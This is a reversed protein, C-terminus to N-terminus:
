WNKPKIRNSYKALIQMPHFSICLCMGSHVKLYEGITQGEQTCHEDQGVSMTEDINDTCLLEDEALTGIPLQNITSMSSQWCRTGGDEDVNSGQIFPVAAHGNWVDNLPYNLSFISCCM